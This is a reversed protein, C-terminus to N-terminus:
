EASEIVPCGTEIWELEQVGTKTLTAFCTRGDSPLKGRKILGDAELGDLARTIAPKNVALREALRSVQRDEPAQIEDLLVLVALQRATRDDGARVMNVITGSFDAM